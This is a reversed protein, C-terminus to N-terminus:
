LVNYNNAANRPWLLWLLMDVCKLDLGTTFSSMPSQCPFNNRVDDGNPIMGIRQASVHKVQSRGAVRFTQTKKIM